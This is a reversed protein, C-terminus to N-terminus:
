STERHERYLRALEAYKDDAQLLRRLAVRDAADDTLADLGALLNAFGDRVTDDPATLATIGVDETRPQAELFLYWRDGASKQLRSYAEPLDSAYRVRAIPKRIHEATAAWAEPTGHSEWLGDPQVPDRALYEVVADLTRSDSVDFALKPRTYFGRSEVRLECGPGDLHLIYFEKTASEDIARLNTSGPSILRVRQGTAGQGYIQEHKHWDGSLIMSVHPVSAVTADATGVAQLEAWSCHTALITAQSPINDLAPLMGGPQYDLGYLRQGPCVEIIRDHLHQTAPAAAPWPPNGAVVRDHDGQVYFLPLRAAEMRQAGQYFACWAASDPRATDFIDGLLLGPVAYKVCYDIFQAFSDQSDGCLEPRRAWNHCDLHLDGTIALIAAM